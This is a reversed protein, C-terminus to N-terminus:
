NAGRGGLQHRKPIFTGGQTTAAAPPMLGENTVATDNTNPAADVSPTRLFAILGAIIIGLLVVLVLVSVTSVGRRAVNPLICQRRTM